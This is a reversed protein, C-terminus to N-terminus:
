GFVLLARRTCTNTHTSNTTPSLLALSHTPPIRSAGIVFAQARPSHIQIMTQSKLLTPTCLYHELAEFTRVDDHISSRLLDTTADIYHSGRTRRFTLQTSTIDALEDHQHASRPSHPQPHSYDDEHDATTQETGGPSSGDDRQKNSSAPTPGSGASSATSLGPVYNTNTPLPGKEYYERAIAVLRELPDGAIWASFLAATSEDFEPPSILCIRVGDM